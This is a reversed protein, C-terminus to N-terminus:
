RRLQQELNAAAIVTPIVLRLAEKIELAIDRHEKQTEPACRVALYHIWSRISGKMYLKTTTNLPLIARACEKAIGKRLAEQYLGYATDFLTGQASEWWAKTYDDLTDNSSQRNVPDQAWAPVAEYSDPVEAYRQSFEQFSFSKHRLLQAAVLRTTTISMTADAMEFVSWHGHQM